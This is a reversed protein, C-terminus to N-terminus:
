MVLQALHAPPTQQKAQQLAHLLKAHMTTCHDAAAEAIRQLQLGQPAMNCTATFLCSSPMTCSRTCCATLSLNTAPNCRTAACPPLGKWGHHIIIGTSTRKPAPAVPRERCRSDNAPILKYNNRTRNHAHAESMLGLQSAADRGPQQNCVGISM